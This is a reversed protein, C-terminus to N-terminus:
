ENEEKIKPYSTKFLINSLAYIGISEIYSIHPVNFLHPILWNWLAYVVWSTILYSLVYIIISKLNIEM